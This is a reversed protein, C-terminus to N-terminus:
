QRHARKFPKKKSLLDNLNHDYTTIGSHRIVEWIKKTTFSADQDRFLKLFKEPVGLDFLRAVFSKDTLLSGEANLYATMKKAIMSKNEDDKAQATEVIEDRLKKVQRVSDKLASLLEGDSLGETDIGGDKLSKLIDARDEESLFGKLDKNQQKSM